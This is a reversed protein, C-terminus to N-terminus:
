AGATALPITFRVRTGRGPESDLMIRGGNREILSRCIFLGLGSGRGAPKTTFTEEFARRRTDADMGCGNDAVAVEVGDDHARTVVQVEPERGVISETADAANILLNMLVQTMQDPSTYIAPVQADLDLALRVRDFRRDYSVFNCTSNVLGNLDILRPEPSQPATFSSMQRTIAAIRRAEALVLQPECAGGPQPNCHASRYDSMSQALGYIAAIPNNIEHAVGAALSGVAAMKDKHFRQQRAIEARDEQDRLDTQMRNVSAMLRGIEDQRTVALPAGDYGSVIQLARSELRRLDGVIRTFFAIVLAGFLLVGILGGAVMTWTIADFHGAYEATLRDRRERVSRTFSDLRGTLGHLADRLEALGGRAPAARLAALPADLSGAAGLAGDYDPALRQVGAQVAEVDLVVGRFDASAERAHYLEQVKLITHALSTNVNALRGDLAHVRQLAELTTRLSARHQAVLLGVALAYAILALFAAIGKARLSMYGPEWAMKQM